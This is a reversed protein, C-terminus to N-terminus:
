HQVGSFSNRATGSWSEDVYNSRMSPRVTPSLWSRQRPSWRDTDLVDEITPPQHVFGLEQDPFLVYPVPPRIQSLQEGPISML